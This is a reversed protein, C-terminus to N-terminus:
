KIKTWGGIRKRRTKKIKKKLEKKFKIMKQDIGSTRMKLYHNVCDLAEEYRGAKDYMNALDIYRGLINMEEQCEPRSCIDIIRTLCLIADELYQPYVEVIEELDTFYTWYTDVRDPDMDIARRFYDVGKELDDTYMLILNGAKALVKPTGKTREIFADMAAIAAIKGDERKRDSALVNYLEYTYKELDKLKIAEELYQTAESLNVGPHNFNKMMRHAVTYYLEALGEDPLDSEMSGSICQELLEKAEELQADTSNENGEQQLYALVQSAKMLETRLWVKESATNPDKTKEVKKSNKELRKAQEGALKCAYEALDIADKEITAAKFAKMQSFTHGCNILEGEEYGGAIGFCWKSWFGKKFKFTYYRLDHLDFEGVYEIKYPAKGLEEPHSLWDLMAAKAIYSQIQNM